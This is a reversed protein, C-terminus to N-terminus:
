IIYLKVLAVLSSKIDFRGKMVHFFHVYWIGSLLFLAAWLVSEESFLPRHTSIGFYHGVSCKWIEDKIVHQQKIYANVGM